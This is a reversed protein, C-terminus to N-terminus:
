KVKVLGIIMLPKRVITKMTITIEVVNRGIHGGAKKLHKDFEPVKVSTRFVDLLVCPTVTIPTPEETYVLLLVTISLGQVRNHSVCDCYPVGTSEIFSM